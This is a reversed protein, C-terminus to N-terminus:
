KIDMSVMQIFTLMKLLLQIRDWNNISNSVKMLLNISVKLIKLVRRVRIQHQNNVTDTVPLAVQMM